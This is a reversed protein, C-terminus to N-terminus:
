RRMGSVVDRSPLSAEVERAEMGATVARTPLGAEVERAELGAVVTRDELGADVEPTARVVTVDIPQAPFPTLSQVDTSFLLIAQLQYVGLAPATWGRVYPTDAVANVQSAYVGSGVQQWVITYQSVTPSGPSPGNLAYEATVNVTEGLAVTLPGPPTSTCGTPWEHAM